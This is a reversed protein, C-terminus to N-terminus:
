NEDKELQEERFNKNKIRFIGKLTKKIKKLKIKQENKNEENDQAESFFSLFIKLKEKTKQFFQGNLFNKIEGLLSSLKEAASSIFKAVDSLFTQIINIAKPIQAIINLIPKILINIIIKAPIQVLNPMTEIKNLFKDINSNIKELGLLIKSELQLKQNLEIKDLKAQIQAEKAAQIKMWAAMCENYSMEGAVRPKNRDKPAGGMGSCLPCTGVPFGHPCKNTNQAVQSYSTVM